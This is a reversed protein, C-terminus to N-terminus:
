SNRRAERLEEYDTVKSVLGLSPVWKGNDHERSFQRGEPRKIEEHIFYELHKDSVQYRNRIFDKVEEVTFGEESNDVCFRAAAIQWPEKKGFLM